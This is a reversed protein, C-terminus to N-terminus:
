QTIQSLDNSYSNELRKIFDKATLNRWDSYYGTTEGSLHKEYIVAQTEASYKCLELAVSVSLGSNNVLKLIDDTLENLRM